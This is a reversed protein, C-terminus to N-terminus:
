ISVKIQDVLTHQEWEKVLWTWCEEEPIEASIVQLKPFQETKRGAYIEANDSCLIIKDNKRWVLIQQRLTYIYIYIYIYILSLPLSIWIYVMSYMAGEFM